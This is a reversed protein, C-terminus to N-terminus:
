WLGPILRYRVRSAYEAYGPLEVHLTRDELATRVFVLFNMIGGVVLGWWSGLLLPLCLDFFLMGLYMPHRVFRYPGQDAVQHGRDEQIRVRSSLFANAQSAALPLGFAPIFGLLALLRIALPVESWGFRGADLGIIVYLGLTLLLNLVLIVQDWQKVNKGPQFREQSLEPNVHLLWLATLLSIFFHALWYIWAIWWDLRGAPVFLALFIVLFM